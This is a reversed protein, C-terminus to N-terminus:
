DPIEGTPKSADLGDYEEVVAEGSMDGGDDDVKGSMKFGFKKTAKVTNGNCVDYIRGTFEHSQDYSGGIDVTVGPSDIMKVTCNTTINQFWVTFVPDRGPRQTEGVDVWDKKEGFSKSNAGPPKGTQASRGADGQADEHPTGPTPPEITKEEGGVTATATAEAFQKFECCECVCGGGQKFVIEAYFRIGAFWVNGRPMKVEDWVYPYKFKEICCAGKTSSDRFPLHPTVPWRNQVATKIREGLGPWDIFGTWPVTSGITAQAATLLSSDMFALLERHEPPAQHVAGEFLDRIGHLRWFSGVSGSHPSMAASFALAGAVEDPPDIEGTCLPCGAGHVETHDAEISPPTVREDFACEGCPAGFAKNDCCGACGM